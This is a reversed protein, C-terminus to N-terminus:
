RKSAGVQQQGGRIKGPEIRRLATGGEPLRFRPRGQLYGHKVLFGDALLTTRQHWPARNFFGHPQGDAVYLEVANGLEASLRLFEEGQAAFRDKSGYFAIAPPVKKDLNWNPSLRKAMEASGMRQAIREDTCDLVPNYLILLNPRASVTVDEGEADLGPTTYTCAAVHGGASGGSAVIRDPDIGFRAANKRLWRVASKGDEVCKDPTTEHRSRVRYDARAAVMGRWALYHAQLKFQEVTGSVWRGGFFFVIAPRKDSASWDRPFHIHIALEGQPTKKYVHREFRTEYKKYAAEPRQRSASRKRSQQRTADRRSDATGEDLGLAASNGVLVSLAFCTAAVAISNM